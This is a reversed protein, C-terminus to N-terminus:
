VGFGSFRCCSLTNIYLPHMRKAGNEAPSSVRSFISGSQVRLLPEMVENRKIVEDLNAATIRESM